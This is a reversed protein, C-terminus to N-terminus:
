IHYYTSLHAYTHLMTDAEEGEVSGCVHETPLGKPTNDALLVQQHCFPVNKHM